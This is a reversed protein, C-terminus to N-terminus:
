YCLSSQLRVLLVLWMFLLIEVRHSFYRIFSSHYMYIRFFVVVNVVPLRSCVGHLVHQGCIVRAMLFIHAM